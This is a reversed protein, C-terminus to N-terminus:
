NETRYEGKTLSRSLNISYLPIHQRVNQARQEESLGADPNPLEVAEEDKPKFDSSDSVLDGM